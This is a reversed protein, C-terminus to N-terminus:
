NICLVDNATWFNSFSVLVRSMDDNVQDLIIRKTNDDLSAANKLTSASDFGITTLPEDYTWVSGQVPAMKGKISRFTLEGLYDTPKLSKSSLVQVHHPLALMLLQYKSCSSEKKSLQKTQFRFNVTAVDKEDFKWSINCGVPYVNAHCALREEVKTTINVAPYNRSFQSAYSPNDYDLAPPLLVLRLVGTFQNNSTVTTKHITDYSLTITDSAFLLWTLNEQTTIRFTTGRLTNMPTTSATGDDKDTRESCDQKNGCTFSSFISLATLVPTTKECAMTVYPSGQVLYTEWYSSNAGGDIGSSSSYRLTVSLPDFATVHREKTSELVGLTLDPNFIDRISIPDMLRRLPPYSVQVKTASWRYGYPYAMIPYSMGQDSTSQTLVLNTWFAGTPFPVTLMGNKDSSSASSTRLFSPDFLQPDVIDSAALSSYETRDTAPFPIQQETHISTRILMTAQKRGLITPANVNVHNARSLAFVSIGVVVVVAAFLLRLTNPSQQLLSSPRREGNTL